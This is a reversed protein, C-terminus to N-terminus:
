MLVQKYFLMNAWVRCTEVTGFSLRVACGGRRFTRKSLTTTHHTCCVQFGARIVPDPPDWIGIMESGNAAKKSWNKPRAFRCRHCVRTRHPAQRRSQLSLIQPKPYFWFYISIYTGVYAEHSGCFFDLLGMPQSMRCVENKSFASQFNTTEPILLSEPHNLVSVARPDEVEITQSHRSSFM